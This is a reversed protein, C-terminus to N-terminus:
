RGPWLGERSRWYAVSDEYFRRGGYAPDLMYKLAMERVMKQRLFLDLRRSNEQLAGTAATPLRFAHMVAFYNPDRMVRLQEKAWSADDAALRM